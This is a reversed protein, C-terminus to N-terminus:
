KLIGMYTIPTSAAQAATPPNTGYVYLYGAPIRIAANTWNAAWASSNTPTYPPWELAGFYDPKSTYYYSDRLDSVGYGGLVLGSNTSTATDWNVARLLTTYTLSDWSTNCANGQGFNGIYYVRHLDNCSNTTDEYTTTQGVKGLINGIVSMHRNTAVIEIAQVGGSPTFSTNEPWAYLRNRHAVNYASGDWTVNMDFQPMFNGEFINMNPQGGHAFIGATLFLNQSQLNIGFNYLYASGSISELIFMSGCKDGLNNAILNGGTAIMRFGYDDIRTTGLLWNGTFEGRSGFFSFIYGAKNDGATVKCNKVWCGYTVRLDIAETGSSANVYIDEIGSYKCPSLTTTMYWVQPVNTGGLNWNPWYLPETLTVTYDTMSAIRNMQNQIRDHGSNPFNTSSWVLNDFCIAPNPCADASNKSYPCTDPDNLQDMFILAGPALGNTDDVMITYTGQTYGNTWNKHRSAVPTTWESFWNNDDGITVRGTVTTNTRGAGKLTMSRSAPITLSGNYTGAALTVMQNSPCANIAAQITASSSGAPLVAFVVRNTPIGGPVGVLGAWSSTGALTRDTSLPDTALCVLPFLFPLVWKM